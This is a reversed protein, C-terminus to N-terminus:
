GRAGAESRGMRGTGQCRGCDVLTGTPYSNVRGGGGCTDCPVTWLFFLRELLRAIRELPTAM